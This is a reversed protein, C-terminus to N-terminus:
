RWMPPFTSRRHLCRKGDQPGRTISVASLRGRRCHNRSAVQVQGDKPCFSIESPTSKTAPAATSTAAQVAVPIVLFMALISAMQKLQM